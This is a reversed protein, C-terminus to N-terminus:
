HFATILKILQPLDGATIHGDGNVDADACAPAGPAFLRDILAGIDSADIRGNCDADGPGAPTPTQTATGVVLPTRTPTPTGVVPSVPPTATPPKATSVPTATAGPTLTLPPSVGNLVVSVSQTDPGFTQDDQNATAFDPKNDGNFDAVAIAVPGEGVVVTEAPQFSGDSKGQLLMVDSSGNDVSVLDLLGDGNFDAAAIDVPDMGVAYPAPSGFNRPSSQRFVLTANQDRSVVAIDLQKDAAFPAVVAGTPAPITALLVPADFVPGPGSGYLIWVADADTDLVLLDPRGDDDIDAIYLRSPIIGPLSIGAPAAFTHDSNGQLLSALGSGDAASGCSVLDAIGDGTLDGLAVCRPLAGVTVPTLGYTFVASSRYILVSGTFDPFSQTDDAAVAIDDITDANFRATVIATATYREPINVQTGPQFVGDGRNTLITVTDGEDATALDLGPTGSLEGVAIGVPSTGVPYARADGFLSAASTTPCAFCM